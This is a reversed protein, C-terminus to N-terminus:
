KDLLIVIRRVDAMTYSTAWHPLCSVIRKVMIPSPSAVVMQMNKSLSIGVPHRTFVLGGVLLNSIKQLKWNHVSKVKNLKRKLCYFPNCRRKLTDISQSVTKLRVRLKRLSDGTQDVMMKDFIFRDRRKGLNKSLPQTVVSKPPKEPRLMDVGTKSSLLNQSTLNSRGWKPLPCMDQQIELEKKPKESKNKYVPSCCTKRHNSRSLGNSKCENTCHDYAVGRTPLKSSGNRRPRQRPNGSRTSRPHPNQSCNTRPPSQAVRCQPLLFPSGSYPLKKLWKRSVLLTLPIFPWSKM